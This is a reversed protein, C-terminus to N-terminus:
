YLELKNCEIEFLVGHSHEVVAKDNNFSVIFGVFETEHADCMDPDPVIVQSGVEIENGFFDKKIEM